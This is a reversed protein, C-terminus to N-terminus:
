GAADAPDQPCPALGKPTAVAAAPLYRSGGIDVWEGVTCHAPVSAGPAAMGVVRASPNPAARIKVPTPVRVAALSTTSGTWLYTVRVWSNDKLALADWFLGDALDIGAPNLVTRGYGDKGDHYGDFFAAQAEPMGHPLDNWQERIHPPNWYDDRINWPGVDWVPAFACRKTPACVEVTYDGTDRPALARRSPLAVFHDREVIVHGNATTGGVLGERTAFVKFTLPPSHDVTDLTGPATTEAPYATLTLGRVVPGAGSEASLAIRAQVERTPQPFSASGPASISVWESWRGNSRRGRLDVAVSTGPPIDADVAVAVKDSDVPLVHPALTLLGSRAGRNGPM